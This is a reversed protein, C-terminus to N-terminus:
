MNRWFNNLTSWLQTKYAGQIQHLTDLNHKRVDKTNNYLELSKGQLDLMNNTIIEARTHVDKESDYSEDFFEGFTKFGLNHLRKLYNYSTLVMFPHLMSIPKVTKETIVFADDHNESNMTEAVIEINTKNYDSIPPLTEVLGVGDQVIKSYDNDLQLDNDSRARFNYISSKILDKDRIKQDLIRRNPASPKDFMLCLFDKSPDHNKLSSLHPYSLDPRALYFNAIRLFTCDPYEKQLFTGAIGDTFIIPHLQNIWEAFDPQSQAIHELERLIGNTCNYIILNVNKVIKTFDNYKSKQSYIKALTGKSTNHRQMAAWNDQPTDENISFILTAKHKGSIRHAIVDVIPTKPVEPLYDVAMKTYSHYESLPDTVKFDALIYRSSKM